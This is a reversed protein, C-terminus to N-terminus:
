FRTMNKYAKTAREGRIYGDALNELAVGIVMARHHNSPDLGGSKLLREVEDSIAAEWDKERAIELTKQAFQDM